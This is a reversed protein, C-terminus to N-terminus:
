TVVALTTDGKFANIFTNRVFMSDFTFNLPQEYNQYWNCINLM